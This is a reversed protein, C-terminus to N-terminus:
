YASFDIVKLDYPILALPISLNELDDLMLWQSVQSDNKLFRFSSPMAEFSQKLLLSLLYHVSVMGLPKQTCDVIIVGEYNGSRFLTTIEQMTISSQSIPVPHLFQKLTLM